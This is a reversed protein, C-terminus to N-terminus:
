IELFLRFLIIFPGQQEKLVHPVELLRVQAISFDKLGEKSSKLLCFCPVSQILSAAFFWFSEM